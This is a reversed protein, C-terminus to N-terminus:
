PAQFTASAAMTRMEDVIAPPVAPGYAADLVVIAGDVDIIWLDDVQGPGQANRVVADAGELGPTDTGYLSLMASDCAAFEEERSAGPVEYTDSVTLTLSVGSYGGITVPVPDTASTEAQDAFAAAIEDPTTAPTAPITSAWRCADGYVFFGTGKPWSWALLAAGTTQPPDLGDDAKTVGSFESVHLWGPATVDITIGMPDSAIVFPGAPIGSWPMSNPSATTSASPSPSASPVGGPGSSGTLGLFQPGFAVAVVLAAAAIATPLLRNM